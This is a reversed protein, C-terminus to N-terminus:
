VGMSEHTLHVNVEEGPLPQTLNQVFAAKGGSDAFQKVHKGGRGWAGAQQRPAGTACSFVARYEKSAGSSAPATRAPVAAANADGILDGVVKGTNVAIFGPGAFGAPAVQALALAGGEDGM